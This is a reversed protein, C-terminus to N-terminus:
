HKRLFYHKRLLFVSMVLLCVSPIVNENGTFSVQDPNFMLFVSVATNGAEVFNWPILRGLFYVIGSLIIRILWFKRFKLQNETVAAIQLHVCIGGFSLLAAAGALTGGNQLYATVNSVELISGIVAPIRILFQQFIGELIGLFGSFALIMGCIKLMAQAACEVSQTFVSVFGSSASNGSKESNKNLDKLNETYMDRLLFWGWLLNPVSIIVWFLLATQLTGGATGLIFGFGSGMCVCLLNQEQKPTIMCNQSLEHLIQAGVPYGGVQSFLLIMCLMADRHLFKRFFKQFPQALASLLGTRVSLSALISFLYLSPILVCVCRKGADLVSAAAAPYFLVAGALFFLIALYIWFNEFEQNREHSRM